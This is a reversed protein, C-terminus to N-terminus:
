RPDAPNPEQMTKGIEAAAVLDPNERINGIVTEGSGFKGCLDAVARAWLRHESDLPAAMFGRDTWEVLLPVRWTEHCVIDGEYVERGNRDRLGTFQELPDDAHRAFFGELGYAGSYFYQRREADWARFKIERNM